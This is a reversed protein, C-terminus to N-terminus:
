GLETEKTAHNGQGRQHLLEFLSSFFQTSQLPLLGLSLNSDRRWEFYNSCLGRLMVTVQACAQSSAGVRSLNYAM